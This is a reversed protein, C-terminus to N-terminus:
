SPLIDGLSTIIAFLIIAGCIILAIWQLWTMLLVGTGLSFGIIAPHFQERRILAIIGLFIACAGLPLVAADTIRDINWRSKRPSAPEPEGAIVRKAADKIAVATEAITREIPKQPAFPGFSLHAVAVILALAAMAMACIGFGHPKDSATETM